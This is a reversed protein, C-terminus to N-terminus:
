CSDRFRLDLNAFYHRRVHPCDVLHRQHPFCHLLHLLVAETGRDNVAITDVFLDHGIVQEGIADIEVLYHALRNQGLMLSGINAM